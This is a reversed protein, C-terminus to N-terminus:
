GRKRSTNEATEGAPRLARLLRFQQGPRGPQDGHRRCLLRGSGCRLNGHGGRPRWAPQRTGRGQSTSLFHQKRPKGGMPPVGRQGIRQGRDALRGGVAASRGVEGSAAAAARVVRRSLGRQHDFLRDADGPVLPFFQQRLVPPLRLVPRKRRQDGLYGLAASPLMERRCSPQLTLDNAAFM